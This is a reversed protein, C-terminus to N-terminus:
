GLDPLAKPNSQVILARQLLASAAAAHMARQLNTAIITNDPELEAAREFIPVSDAFRKQDYLTVGLLNLVRPDNPSRQAEQRLLGLAAEEDHKEHLILARLLDGGKEPPLSAERLAREAEALRGTAVLSLVLSRQVDPPKFGGAIAAKLHELAAKPKGRAVLVQGLRAAVQPDDHLLNSAVQLAELAKQYEGQRLLLEGFALQVEPLLPNEHIAKELEEQAKDLNGLRGDLLGLAAWARDSHPNDRTIRRFTDRAASQNGMKLYVEGLRLQLELNDQQYSLASKLAYEAEDWNGARTSSEALLELAAVNSPQLAVAKRLLEISTQVDGEDLLRNARLILEPVSLQTEAPAFGEAGGTGTATAMVQRLNEADSTRGLAELLQLKLPLLRGDGPYSELLRNVDALAGELDQGAELRNQISSVTEELDLASAAHGGTAASAQHRRAKEFLALFEKTYYDSALELGPDELIAARLHTPVEKERGLAFLTWAIRVHLQARHNPDDTESLAQTYLQVARSFEGRRYAQAAAEESPTADIALLTATVLIVVLVSCLTRLCRVMM